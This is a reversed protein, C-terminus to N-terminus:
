EVLVTSWNYPSVSKIELSTAKLISTKPPTVGDITIVVALIQAGKQRLTALAKTIADDWKSILVVVFVKSSQGSWGTPLDNLVRALPRDGDNEVRALYDLVTWWGLPTPPLDFRRGIGAKWPYVSVGSGM